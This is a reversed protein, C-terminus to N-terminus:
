SYLFTCVGFKIRIFSVLNKFTKLSRYSGQIDDSPSKAVDAVLILHLSPINRDFTNSCIRAIKNSTAFVEGRV